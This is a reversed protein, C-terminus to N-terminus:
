MDASMTMQVEGKFAPTEEEFGPFVGLETKTKTVNTSELRRM